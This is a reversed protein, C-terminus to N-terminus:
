KPLTKTKLQKCLILFTNMALIGRTQSIARNKAFQNHMMALSFDVELTKGIERTYATTSLTAAISGTKSDLQNLNAELIKTCGGSADKTVSFSPDGSEGLIKFTNTAVFDASSELEQLWSAEGDIALTVRTQYKLNRFVHQTNHFAFSETGFVLEVLVKNGLDHPTKEGNNSIISAEYYFDDNVNGCYEFRMKQGLWNLPIEIDHMPPTWPNRSEFDLIPAVGQTCMFAISPATRELWKEDGIKEHFYAEQYLRTIEEMDYKNRLIVLIRDEMFNARFMDSVGKKPFLLHAARVHNFESKTTSEAM